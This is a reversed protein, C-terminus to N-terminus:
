HHWSDAEALAQERLRCVADAAIYGCADLPQDSCLDVSTKWNAEQCMTAIQHSICTQSHCAHDVVGAIIERNQTIARILRLADAVADELVFEAGARETADSHATSAPRISLVRAREILKEQIDRKLDADSRKPWKGQKKAHLVVGYPKCMVRIHRSKANQLRQAHAYLTQFPEGEGQRPGLNAIVDDLSEIAPCSATTADNSDLEPSVRETVADMSQENSETDPITLINGTLETAPSTTTASRKGHASSQDQPRKGFTPLLLAMAIWAGEPRLAHM